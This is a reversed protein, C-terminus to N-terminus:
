AVLRAALETWHVKEPVAGHRLCGLLSKREADSVDIFTLGM